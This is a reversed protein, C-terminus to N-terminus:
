QFNSNDHPASYDLNQPVTLMGKETSCYKKFDFSLIDELNGMLAEEIQPDAYSIQNEWRTMIDKSLVIHIGALLPLLNNTINEDCDENIAKASHELIELMKNSESITTKCLQSNPDGGQDCLSGNIMVLSMRNQLELKLNEIEYKGNKVEYEHKIVEYFIYSFFGLILTLTLAGIFALINKIM